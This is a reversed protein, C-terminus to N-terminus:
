LRVISVYEPTRRIFTQGKLAKEAEKMCRGCLVPHKATQYYKVIDPTAELWRECYECQLRNM